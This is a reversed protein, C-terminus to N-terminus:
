QTEFEFVTNLPVGYKSEMWKPDSHYWLIITNREGRRNSIFAHYSKPSVEFVLLRNDIPEVKIKPQGSNQEWLGTEGGDGARWEPNGFYYILAVSRAVQVVNPVNVRQGRSMLTGGLATFPHLGNLMQSKLFNVLAYDSHVHGSLSEEKHHHFSGHVYPGLENSVRQQIFNRLVQSYFLSFRPENLELIHGYADHIYTAGLSGKANPSRSFTHPDHTESVGKNLRTRFAAVIASRWPENLFHDIIIHPFPSNFRKEDASNIANEHARELRSLAALSVHKSSEINVNQTSQNSDIDLPNDDM